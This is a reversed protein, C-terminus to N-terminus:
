KLKIIDVEKDKCPSCTRSQFCLSSSEVLILSTVEFNPSSQLLHSRVSPCVSVRVCYFTCFGHFVVLNGRDRADQHIVSVRTSANMASSGFRVIKFTDVSLSNLRPNSDRVQIWSWGINSSVTHALLQTIHVHQM